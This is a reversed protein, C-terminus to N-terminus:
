SMHGRPQHPPGSWMGAQSRTDRLEPWVSGKSETPGDESDKHQGSRQWSGSGRAMGLGSGQGRLTAQGRPEEVAGAM